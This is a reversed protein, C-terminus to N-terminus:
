CAAPWRRTISPKISAMATLLRLDSSPLYAMRNSWAVQTRLCNHGGLTLPTGGDCNLSNPNDLVTNSINLQSLGTNYIGNTNDKITVNKLVSIGQNYYGGGHKLGPNATNRGITVSTLTVFTPDQINAPGHTIWLGGGDNTSANDTFSSNAIDVKANFRALGGGEAANNRSFVSDSVGVLTTADTAYIGGGEVANGLNFLTRRVDAVSGGTTTGVFLGAGFRGENFVFSSDWLTLGGYSAIGGGFGGVNLPVKNSLFNGNTVNLVGQNWIAGGDQTASNSIFSVPNFTSSGRITM